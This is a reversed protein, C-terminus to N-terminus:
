RFCSKDKIIKGDIQFLYSLDINIRKSEIYIGIETDIIRFLANLVKM